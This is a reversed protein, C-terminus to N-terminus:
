ALEHLQEVLKEKVAGKDICASQMARRSMVASARFVNVNLCIKAEDLDIRIHGPIRDDSPSPLPHPYIVKGENLVLVPERCSNCIGIWWTTGKHKEWFAGTTGESSYM